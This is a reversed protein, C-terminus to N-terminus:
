TCEIDQPLFSTAPGRWCQLERISVSRRFRVDYIKRGTSAVEDGKNRKMDWRKILGVTWCGTEMCADYGKASESRAALHGQRRVPQGSNPRHRAAPFRSWRCALCPPLSLESFLIRWPMTGWFHRKIKFWIGFHVM